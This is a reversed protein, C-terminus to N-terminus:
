EDDDEGMPEFRTLGTNGRVAAGRAYGSRAFAAQTAPRKDVFAIAEKNCKHLVWLFDFNPQRDPGDVFVMEYSRIPTDVYRWGRMKRDPFKPNISSVRYRETPSLIIEIHPKLEEPLMRMAEDYWFMDEEMSTVRGVGNELMACAIAITSKGTGCELIEAPRHRKVWKYLHIYADFYPGRSVSRSFYDRFIKNNELPGLLNLAADRMEFEKRIDEAERWEDVMM